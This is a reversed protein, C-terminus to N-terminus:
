IIIKNISNVITKNIQSTEPYIDFWKQFSFAAQNVLMDIGNIIISGEKVAKKVLPTKVPNYVMEFVYKEKLDWKTPLPLIDKTEKTLMGMSSCNVVLGINRIETDLANLEDIVIIPNKVLSTFIGATKIANKKTRNYLYIKKVKQKILAYITSKAVGGSGIVLCSANKFVFDKDQLSRLFGEHDTNHAYSKGGQFFITNVAGILSSPEDLYDVYAIVNEKYPMTINLGVFNLSKAGYFANKIDKNEVEFAMYVADIKHEKLFHNQIQPSLSHKAPKGLLAILNTTAKIM